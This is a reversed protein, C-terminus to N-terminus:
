YQGLGHFGPIRRDKAEWIHERPGTLQDCKDGVSWYFSRPPFPGLPFTMGLLAAGLGPCTRNEATFTKPEAGFSVPGFDASDAWGTGLRAPALGRQGM